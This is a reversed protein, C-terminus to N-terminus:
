YRHTYLAPKVTSIMVFNSDHWADMFQEFTYEKAIDGTGPDRIIVVRYYSDIGVVLLAHDAKYDEGRESAPNWLEGSDVSIIIRKGRDLEAALFNLDANHYRNVKVGYLELLNGIDSTKTGQGPYYWKYHIAIERLDSESVNIDFDRLILQQARIACTDSYGQRIYDSKRSAVFDEVMSQSNKSLELSNYNHNFSLNKSNIEIGTAGLIGILAVTTIGLMQALRNKM